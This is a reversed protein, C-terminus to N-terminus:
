RRPLLAVPDVPRGDRRIEFHLMARGDNSRGMDAIRAGRAVQAGEKVLLKANHGYASLYNDNHKIIILQGYGILGSGSYVVRGAEAAKVAQGPQGGIKIGQRTADRSSYSSVLPGDVPWAWRLASAPVAGRTASKTTTSATTRPTHRSPAAHGTASPRPAPKAATQAHRVPAVLRIVQGPYITYPARIRNWQALSRFDKGARWAISYLTDGRRVRYTRGGISPYSGSKHARHDGASRTELPAKWASGCGVLSVLVLVAALRTMLLTPVHSM